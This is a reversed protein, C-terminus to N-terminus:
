PIVGLAPGQHAAPNIPLEVRTKNLKVVEPQEQDMERILTATIKAEKQTEYKGLLVAYAGSKTKDIWIEADWRTKYEEAFGRAEEYVSFERLGISFLNSNRKKNYNAALNKYLVDAKLSEKDVQRFFESSPMTGVVRKVENGRNDLILYSPYTTARFSSIWKPLKESERFPDVKLPIYNAQIYDAVKRNRLVYDDMYKCPECYETHFKLFYYTSTDLKASLTKPTTAYVINAKGPVMQDKVFSLGLICLGYSAAGWFAYKIKRKLAFHQVLSVTQSLKNRM